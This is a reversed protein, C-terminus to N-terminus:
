AHVWTDSCADEEGSVSSDLVTKLSPMSSDTEYGEEPASHVAGTITASARPIVTGSPSADSADGPLNHNAEHPVTAPIAPVKLLVDHDGSNASSVNHMHDPVQEEGESGDLARKAPLLNADRLWNMVDSLAEEAPEHADLSLAAMILQVTFLNFNKQEQIAAAADGAGLLHFFVQFALVLHLVIECQEDNVDCASLDDSLSSVVWDDFQTPHCLKLAFDVTPLILLTTPGNVILTVHQITNAPTSRMTAIDPVLYIHTEYGEITAM